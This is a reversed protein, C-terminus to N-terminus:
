NCVIVGHQQRNQPHWVHRGSLFLARWQRMDYQRDDRTGERREAEMRVCVGWM